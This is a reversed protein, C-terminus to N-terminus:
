TGFDGAGKVREVRVQVSTLWMQFAVMPVGNGAGFGRNASAVIL